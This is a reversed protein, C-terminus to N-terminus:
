KKALIQYIALTPLKTHNTLHHEEGANVLVWDGTRAIETPGNTIPVTIEGSLIFFVEDHPHTHREGDHARIGPPFYAVGCGDIIRGKMLETVARDNEQASLEHVRLIRM